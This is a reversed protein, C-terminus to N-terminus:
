LIVTSTFATGKDTIVTTPLYAYKTMVDILDKAVNIASADTLSYASLYRSFDDIATLVTEYGRSPPLNPFLDIQMAEEPGLDWEPLNPLEPTITANPVRKDKACQECGDEWKKGHKAMSPYYYRQRIEQLIKSVGPHKHATGHLSQLLEQLIHQPFLIRRYKVNGTEDFNQRTLIVDKVIIRELNNAYHRYRADQQLVNESYVEHLLKAKLQQLVADKSQAIIIQNMKRLRILNTSVSQITITTESTAPNRRTAEKM